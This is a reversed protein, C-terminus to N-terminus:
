KKMPLSRAFEIGQRIWGTLDHDEQYGDPDVYIWGTMPKGSFDFPRTHPQMLAKAGSETGLRVILQDGIVGCAMNGSILFGIGGFMKKEVVQDQGALSVLQSRIREVLENNYAM